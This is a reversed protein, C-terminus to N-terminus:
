DNIFKEKMSSFQEIAQMYDDPRGIDLWYGNYNIAKVTKRDKLLALMLEDFGFQRVEPIYPLVRRNIMYIGMSVEYSKVPKELFGLLSGSESTNLVGYDILQSRCYSSITFLNNNMEHVRFFESYNLDTLIDGNMVLFNDPLDPILRLPGMTGLPEDEM